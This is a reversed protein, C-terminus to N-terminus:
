RFSYHRAKSALIVLSNGSLEWSMLTAKGLSSVSHPTIFQYTGKDFLCNITSYSHQKLLM